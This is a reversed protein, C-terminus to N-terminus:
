SIVHTVIIFPQVQSDAQSQVIIGDPQADIEQFVIIFSSCPACIQLHSVSKMCIAIIGYLSM